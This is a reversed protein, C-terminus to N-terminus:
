LFQKVMMKKSPMKGLLVDMVVYFIMKLLGDPLIMNRSKNM